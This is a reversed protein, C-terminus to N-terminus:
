IQRCVIELRFVFFDGWIHTNAEAGGAFRVKALVGSFGTKLCTENLLLCDITLITRRILLFWRYALSVCASKNGPLGGGCCEGCPSLL